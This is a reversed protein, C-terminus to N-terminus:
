RLERAAEPDALRFRLFAAVGGAPALLAADEIFTVAADTRKAQLVLEEITEERIPSQAPREISANVDPSVEDASAAAPVAPVLLRDVQGLTLAARVRPLGITGLGRARFANLVRVVDDRDSQLDAQRFADFTARLVSADASKMDLNSIEVMKQQADRSLADRMMPLAVPGAAVFIQRIGEERLVRDVVAAVEKMHQLHLNESNRQYEGESFVDVGPTRSPKENQLQLKRQVAGVAFVYLRASNTDVLLAAYKAYEDALRALPFLHPQRDIYLRHGDIRAELQLTEFLDSDGSCSFVATMTASPPVGTTLFKRIRDADKQLLRRASSSPEFTGMQENFAREFFEDGRRRGNQDARLDLYLSVVPDSPSTVTALRALVEEVNTVTTPM